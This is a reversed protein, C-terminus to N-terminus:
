EEGLDGQGPGQVEKLPASFGILILQASPLNSWIKLYYLHETSTNIGRATSFLHESHVGLAQSTLFGPWEKGEELLETDIGPQHSDLFNLVLLKLCHAFTM